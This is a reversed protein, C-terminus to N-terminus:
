AAGPFDLTTFVGGIDIFGEHPATDTARYFGVIEGSDNIGTAQTSHAGPFDITTFTGGVDLFGNASGVNTRYVGVIDGASNIKRATTTTAGPFDLTAFTGGNDLFSHAGEFIHGAEPPNLDYAGVILGADNISTAESGTTASPDDITAFTSASYLFGHRTGDALIYTGVIQGLNNIDTAGSQAAGPFDITSYSFSDARTTTTLGLALVVASLCATTGTKM